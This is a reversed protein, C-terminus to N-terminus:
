KKKKLINFEEELLDEFKPSFEFESGRKELFEKIDKKSEGVTKDKYLKPNSEIIKNSLVSETTVSAPSRLLKKANGSGLNHRVYADELSVDDGLKNKTDNLLDSMVDEQTDFSTPSKLGSPKLAKIISPMLQFVGRARSGAFNKDYKGHQSEVGGIKAIEEPTFGTREAVRNYLDEVSREVYNDRNQKKLLELLKNKM